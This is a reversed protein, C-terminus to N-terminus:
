EKQLSSLIRPHEFRKVEHYLEPYKQRFMFRNINDNNQYFIIFKKDEQDLELPHYINYVVPYFMLILDIWSVEFDKRFESLIKYTEVGQSVTLNEFSKCENSLFPGPIGLTISRLQSRNLYKLIETLLEIPILDFYTPIEPLLKLSLCKLNGIINMTYIRLSRENNDITFTNTHDSRM